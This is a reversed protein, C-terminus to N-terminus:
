VCVCVHLCSCLAKGRERLGDGGCAVWACVLGAWHGSGAVAPVQGAAAVELVVVVMVGQQQRRQQQEQPTGLLGKQGQVGVWGGWWAVM